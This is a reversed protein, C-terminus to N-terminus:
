LTVKFRFTCPVVQSNELPLYWQTPPNMQPGSTPPLTSSQSLQPQKRSACPRTTSALTNQWAAPSVSARPVHPLPQNDASPNAGLCM